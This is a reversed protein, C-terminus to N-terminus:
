PFGGFLAEDLRARGDLALQDVGDLIILAQALIAERLVSPGLSRLVQEDRPLNTCALRLVRWGLKHAAAGLISKRGAGERGSLM